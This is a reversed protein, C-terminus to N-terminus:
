WVIVYRIFRITSAILIGTWSIIGLVGLPFDVLMLFWMTWPPAHLIAVFKTALAFLGIYLAAFGVFFAFGVAVHKGYGPLDLTGSTRFWSKYWALIRQHTATAARSNKSMM